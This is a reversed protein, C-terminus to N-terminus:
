IGVGTTYPDDEPMWPFGGFNNGNDFKKVCGHKGLFEHDCGAFATFSAGILDTEIPNFLVIKSGQHFTIMYFRDAIDIFGYKFWDNDYAALASSIIIGKKLNSGAEITAVASFKIDTQSVGCSPSFLFHNCLTQCNMRLGGRKVMTGIPEGQLKTVSGEVLEGQRVRGVWITKLESVGRQGSYIKLWVTRQPVITRFMLAIPNDKSVVIDIDIDNVSEFNQKLRSHSIHTPTFDYVTDPSEGPGWAETAFSEVKRTGSFRYYEWGGPRRIAFEYLTFPRSLFPSFELDEWLAM